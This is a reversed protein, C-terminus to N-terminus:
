FRGSVLLGFDEGRVSGTATIRTSRAPWFFFTALTAAGLVGASVFATNRVNRDTPLRANYQALASCPEPAPAAACASMKNTLKARADDIHSSDSEVRTAYITAVVLAGGTLGAGAALVITRPEITTGPLPKDGGTVGVLDTPGDTRAAVSAAPASAEVRQVRVVVAKPPGPVVYVQETGDLYGRKRATVVHRGPEVYWKLPGLPSRGVVEDDVRIEADGLNTDIVLSGLNEGAKKLSKAALERQVVSATSPARLFAEFHRAAEVSRGTGLEAEGLNQLFVPHPYVTYAQKFAVRAAEFNGADYFAKGENWRVQAQQVEEPTPAPQAFLPLAVCVTLASLPPLLRPFPM